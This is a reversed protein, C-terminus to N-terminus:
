RQLLSTYANIWQEPTVKAVLEGILEHPIHEPKKFRICSKGMDLKGVARKAYQEQFWAMLTADAYLGMHYLTIAGKQNAISLFPLPIKPDCHYGAPYLSHPVSWGPMNYSFGEQFGAPLHERITQMLAEFAPKREAPIAALYDAVAKGPDKTATM